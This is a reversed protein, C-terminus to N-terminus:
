QGARDRTEPKLGTGLWLHLARWSDASQDRKPNNLNNLVLINLVEIM